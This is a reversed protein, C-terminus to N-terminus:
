RGKGVQGARNLQRSQEDTGDSVEEPGLEKEAWIRLDVAVGMDRGRVNIKLEERQVPVKQSPIFRESDGYKPYRGRQGKDYM